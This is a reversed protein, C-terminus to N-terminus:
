GSYQYPPAKEKRRWPYRHDAGVGVQILTREYSLGLNDWSDARMRLAASKYDTWDFVGYGWCQRVYQVVPYWDGRANTRRITRSAIYEPVDPVEEDFLLLQEM